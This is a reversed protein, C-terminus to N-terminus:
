GLHAYINAGSGTGLTVTTFNLRLTGVGGFGSLDVTIVPATALSGFAIGSLASLAVTAAAYNAARSIIGWTTGGDHSVEVQFTLATVTGGVPIAQFSVHGRWNMSQPPLGFCGNAPGTGCTGTTSVAGTTSVYLAEDVGSRLMKTPISANAM